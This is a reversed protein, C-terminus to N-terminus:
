RVLLEVRRSANNHLTTENLQELYTPFERDPYCAKWFEKAVGLSNKVSRQAFELWKQPPLWIQAKGPSNHMSSDRLEKTENLFSIFPEKKQKEDSLIIPSKGDLRILKPYIELKKELSIYRNAKTGRLEERTGSDIDTRLEAETWGISNVFAEVFAASNLVCLRSYRCVEGNLASLRSYLEKDISHSQANLRQEGFSHMREYM